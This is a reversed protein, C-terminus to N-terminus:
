PTGFAWSSALTLWTVPVAVLVVTAEKRGLM